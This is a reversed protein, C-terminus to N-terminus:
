SLDLGFSLRQAASCLARRAADCSRPRTPELAAPACRRSSSGCASTAVSPACSRWVTSCATRTSM